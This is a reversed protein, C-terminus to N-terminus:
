FTSELIYQHSLNLKGEFAHMHLNPDTGDTMEQAAIKARNRRILFQRTFLVTGIFIADISLGIPPITILFPHCQHSQM